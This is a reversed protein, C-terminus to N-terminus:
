WYGSQEKRNQIEYDVERQFDKRSLGMTWIKSYIRGNEIEFYQRYHHYKPDDFDINQNEFVISSALEIEFGVKEYCRIARHNFENVDLYIKDMKMEKFFYSLLLDIADTGIQQNIQNPDLVIGLEATKETSSINKLGIYGLLKDDFDRITFYRKRYNRKKMMYWISLEYKSLLSLNYDIFLENEHVGWENKIENVDSKKLDEFYFRPGIIREM